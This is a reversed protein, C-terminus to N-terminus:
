WTGYPIHILINKAANGTTDSLELCVSHDDSPSYISVIHLIPVPLIICYNFIVSQTKFIIQPSFIFLILDTVCVCVGIFM